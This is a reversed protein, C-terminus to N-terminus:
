KLLRVKQGATLKHVGAAVIREGVVLGEVITAGDDGYAAVTVPRLAVSDGADVIWVAHGGGQQFVAALPVALAAAGPQVFRVTATLGLAPAPSANILSVRAAYTRTAADAAPALERLRGKLPAGGAWLTVEAAAGPKLGALQTEPVSIAIETEGAEALRFVGQGASVVQGPEALVQAIVGAKDARLGAYTAQNKALAAQADAAKLTTERADLASRSVFNRQHLDRYRLADAEALARQADSQGAQLQLDIADLRALPQGAAVVAGVDVLREVLKGGVRFALTTERRARVEGSYSRATGGAAAGVVLTKVIPIAPPPPPAEGCAALAVAVLVIAPLFPSM